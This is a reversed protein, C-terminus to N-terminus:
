ISPEPPETFCYVPVISQAELITLASPGDERKLPKGGASTRWDM